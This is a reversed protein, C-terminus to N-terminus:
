IQFNAPVKRYKPIYGLRNTQPIDDSIISKAFDDARPFFSRNRDSHFLSTSRLAACSKRTEKLIGRPGDGVRFVAIYFHPFRADDLTKVGRERRDAKEGKISALRPLLPQVRGLAQIKLAKPTKREQLTDVKSREALVLIMM